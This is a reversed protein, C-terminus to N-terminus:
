KPVAAAAGVSSTFRERVLAVASPAGDGKYEGAKGLQPLANAHTAELPDMGLERIQIQGEGLDAAATRILSAMGQVAIQFEAVAKRGTVTPKVATGSTAMSGDHPMESVATQRSKEAGCFEGVTDLDSIL